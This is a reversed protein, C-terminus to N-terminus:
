VVKADDMRAPVTGRSVESLIRLGEERRKMKVRGELDVGRRRIMM